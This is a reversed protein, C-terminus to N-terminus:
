LILESVEAYPQDHNLVFSPDGSKLKAVESNNGYKGWAYTQVACSLKLFAAMKYKIGHQHQAQLGRTEASIISFSRIFTIFTWFSQSWTIEFHPM